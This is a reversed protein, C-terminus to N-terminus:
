VSSKQTYNIKPAINCSYISNSFFEKLQKKYKFLM